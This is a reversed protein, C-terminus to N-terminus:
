AHALNYILKKKLAFGIRLMAQRKSFLYFFIMLWAFFLVYGGIYNHITWAMEYGYYRYGLLIMLIRIINVIFTGVIGIMSWFIKTKIRAQEESMLVVLIVSFVLTSYAGVCEWVILISINRSATSFTIVDPYEATVNVGLTNFVLEILRVYFPIYSSFYTALWRSMFSISSSAVILFLPSFAEKLASLNFFAIFLGIIYATYNAAGYYAVDPIFSVLAYYLFFSGAIVIFGIYRQIRNAESYPSLSPKKLYLLILGYLILIIDFTGSRFNFYAIIPLPVLAMIYFIKLRDGSSSDSFYRPM